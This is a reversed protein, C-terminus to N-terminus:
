SSSETLNVGRLLWLFVCLGPTKGRCFPLSYPTLQGSLLGNLRAIAQWEGDFSVCRTRVLDAKNGVLVIASAIKCRGLIESIITQAGIFSERDDIAYVVLYADASDIM